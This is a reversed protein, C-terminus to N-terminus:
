KTGTLPVEEEKLDAAQAYRLWGERDDLVPYPPWAFPTEAAGGLVARAERSISRPVPILREPVRLPAYETEESM